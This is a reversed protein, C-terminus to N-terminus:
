IFCIWLSFCGGGINKYIRSPESFCSGPPNDLVAFVGASIRGRDIQKGAAAADKVVQVHTGTPTTIVVADIDKQSLLDLHNTYSKAAGYLAAVEEAVGPVPDAIAAFEVRTNSLAIHQAFAKGMRGAGILGMRIKM